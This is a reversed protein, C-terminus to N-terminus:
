SRLASRLPHRWVARPPPAVAPAGDGAHLGVGSSAGSLAALSDELTFRADAIDHLRQRPEKKLCRQILTRVAPPTAPPLRTWDPERELIQALTDTVTPGPFLRAGTLMEYLVRWVGV